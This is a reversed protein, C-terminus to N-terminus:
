WLGPILRATRQRYAAYDPFAQQLVAEENRMRRLQFVFQVVILAAAPMWAFQLCAGINAVEEALYLPHRVIAYPGDTVLGRAEAMISFSRGLHFLVVLAFATGGGMLVTSAVHGATGLEARPLFPLAYILFAGLAAEIRAQVGPLKAAPRARILTLAVILLYFGLLSASSVLRMIALADFALGQCAKVIGPAAIFAAFAGFWLVVACRALADLLANPDLALRVAKRASIQAETM